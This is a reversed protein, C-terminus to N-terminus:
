KKSSSLLSGGIQGLGVGGMMDMQNKQSTMQNAQGTGMAQLSGATGMGTMAANPVTGTSLGYIKNYMDQATNSYLQGYQNSRNGELGTLAQVRAGGGPVNGIINQRGQNYSNEIGSRAANIVPSYQSPFNTNGYTSGGWDFTKADKGKGVTVPNTLGMFGGAQNIISSRLPDTEGWYEKAMKALTGGYPNSSSGGGGKGGGGM